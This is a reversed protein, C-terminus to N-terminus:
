LPQKRDEWANWIWNQSALTFSRIQSSTGNELFTWPSQSCSCTEKSPNLIWGTIHLCTCTTGQRHPHVLHEYGPCLPAAGLRREPCSHTAWFKTFSWVRIWSKPCPTICVQFFPGPTPPSIEFGCLELLVWNVYKTEQVFFACFSFCVTWNSLILQFVSILILRFLSYITRSGLMRAANQAHTSVFGSIGRVDPRNADITIPNFYIVGEMGEIMQLVAFFLFVFLCCCGFSSHKTTNHRAKSWWEPHCPVDLFAYFTFTLIINKSTFFFKPLFM